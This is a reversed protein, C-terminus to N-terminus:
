AQETNKDHPDDYSNEVPDKDEPKVSETAVPDKDEPKVADDAFAPIALSLCMALVLALTLFRKKM